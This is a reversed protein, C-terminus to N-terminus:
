SDYSYYSLKSNERENQSKYFSKDNMKVLELSKLVINTESILVLIQTSTFHDKKGGLYKM